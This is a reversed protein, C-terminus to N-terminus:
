KVASIYAGTNKVCSSDKFYIDAYFIHILIELFIRLISTLM